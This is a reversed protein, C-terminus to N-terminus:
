TAANRCRSRTSARRRAPLARARLPSRPGMPGLGREDAGNGDGVVLVAEARRLVQVVDEHRAVCFLKSDPAFHVPAHERLERYAPYPDDRFRPSFPDYDLTM